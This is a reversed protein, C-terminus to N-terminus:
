SVNAAWAHSEGFSHIVVPFFRTVLGIALRSAGEIWPRNVCLSRTLRGYKYTNGALPPKGRQVSDVLPSGCAPALM